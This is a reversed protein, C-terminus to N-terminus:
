PMGVTVWIAWRGPSLAKLLPRFWVSRAFDLWRYRRGSLLIPRGYEVAEIGERVV